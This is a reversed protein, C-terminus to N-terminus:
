GAPYPPRAHSLERSLQVPHTLLFGGLRCAQTLALSADQGKRPSLSTLPNSICGRVRQGPCPTPCPFSSRSQGLSLVASFGPHLALPPM